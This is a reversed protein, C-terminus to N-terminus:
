MMNVQKEPKAISPKKPLPHDIQSLNDRYGMLVM